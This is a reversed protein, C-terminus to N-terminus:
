VFLHRSSRLLALAQRDARSKGARRAPEAAATKPSPVHPRPSSGRAPGTRAGSRSRAPARHVPLPPWLTGHACHEPHGRPLEGAAGKRWGQGLSVPRPGLTGPRLRRRVCTPSCPHQRCAEKGPLLARPSSGNAEPAARRGEPETVQLAGGGAAAQQRGPSPSPSAGARRPHPTESSCVPPSGPRAPTPAGTSAPRDAGLSCPPPLVERPHRDQARGLTQCPGRQPQLVSAVAQGDM